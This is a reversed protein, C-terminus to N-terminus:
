NAGGLPAFGLALRLQVAERMLKVAEILEQKEHRRLALARGAVSALAFSKTERKEADLAKAYLEGCISAQAQELVQRECAIFYRRAARGQDNNEVMSLEKAMDLTLHYDALKQARAKASVLDPSSLNEVKIFDEGVTFGFKRIRARIWTTFDRKVQLFAHLTRADCLNIANGSMSGAFVPIISTAM